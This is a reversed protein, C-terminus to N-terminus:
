MLNSVKTSPLLESTDEIELAGKIASIKMKMSEPLPIELSLENSMFYAGTPNLPAINPGDSPKFDVKNSPIGIKKFISPLKFDNEDFKDQDTKEPDLNM